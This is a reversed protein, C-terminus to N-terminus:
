DIFENKAQKLALYYPEKKIKSPISKLQKNQKQCIISTKGYEDVQLYISINELEKPEFYQQQNKILQTEMNLIFRFTDSFHANRALNNLAIKCALNESSQRQSGFRKSEKHFQQIFIYRKLMEKQATKTIKGSKSLPILGYAMLLDKNRKEIIQAKVEDASFLGNTADAYKRARTHANGESIYKAADYLIAFREKGLQKYCSKFWDLDFAGDRLDEISIPTYKM